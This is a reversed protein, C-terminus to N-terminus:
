PKLDNELPANILLSLWRLRVKVVEYSRGDKRGCVRATTRSKTQVKRNEM